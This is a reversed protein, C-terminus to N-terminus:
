TLPTTVPGTLGTDGLSAFCAPCYFGAQVAAGDPWPSLGGRGQRCRLGRRLVALAAIAQDGGRWPLRAARSKM